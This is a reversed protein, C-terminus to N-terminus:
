LAPNTQYRVILDIVNQETVTEGGITGGTNYEVIASVVNESDIRGNGDTDFRALDTAPTTPPAPRTPATLQATGGTPDSLEVGNGDTTNVYLGTGASNSVANLQQLQQPVQAVLPDRTAIVVRLQDGPEFIERVGHLELEIDQQSELEIASVQQQITKAEGDTIRQLGVALRVPGSGTPTVGLELVPIGVLETREDISLEFIAQESEPVQLDIGDGANLTFQSQTTESPPFTEAEVFEDDVDDYYSVTALGDPGGDKLHRDMWALSAQAVFDQQTETPTPVQGFGHIGGNGIILKTEVGKEQLAEFSRLAENVPFLRDYWEQYFLTPTDIQDVFSVASRSQYFERGAEGLERQQLTQNSLQAFEPDLSAGVDRAALNLANAWGFKLAGNPALSQALDNWTARPIIAGLRDDEAATRLQIGGGYSAGDMGIRPNDSGNTLVESRNALYTILRSADRRENPGTSTVEGGSEGFGRSDYALAVYGNSAYGSALSQLDSRNGAWGHTMLIAPYPGGGTTPRYIDAVLTTGDFSSIEVAEEVTFTDQQVLSSADAPQVFRQSVVGAGAMLGLTKLVSRRTKQSREEDSPTESM